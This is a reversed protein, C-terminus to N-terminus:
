PITDTTVWSTDPTLTPITDTNEIITNQTTPNNNKAKKNKKAKKKKPTFIEKFSTLLEKPSNFEEKYILGVGQMTQATKLSYKDVTHTYAKVRFKGNQSLLYEIDVDGIFKNTALNDNRYGFNGNVILRNNPQYLIATEYEQTATEGEGHARVNFGFSFDDTLKSIWNNIQGTVTSSLLSYAENSGINTMSSQLYEPTYFKNFVLLYLIQRNMMEDTNIINRVQQKLAEDSNPLEIDFRITPSTLQDTLYLLCNVPVSTRKTTAEIESQNMLDRLSATLSYLAKINVQANLPDGSWTLSSGQAIKFDKRFVNQLTFQYSGSEITYTGMMRVEESNSDYEVVLNGAGRGTLLDGTKPDIVVQLTADPTAEINLRLKVHATPTPLTFEEEEEEEENTPQIFTVFSNDTAVSASALSINFETNPRTRANVSIQSEQEDGTILVNGTAYVKGFFFDNDTILTNMALLDECTILMRYHLNRFTGDHTVEGDLLAQNGEADTYEKLKAVLAKYINARM